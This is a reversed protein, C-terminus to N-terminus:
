GKVAGATIGKVLWRQTAFFALMVPITSVVGAAMLQATEESYNGIFNRIGIPITEANHQTLAAAFLLEDWAMLFAYVFTAVLGPAANPLVIRWFASFPTCGDVLAAEELEQPISQFFYRMFWIAVPTFFAVYVIILGTRTDYLHIPTNQKLWIFGLFLPLLFMSGPILQTGVVTLGYTTQGRFRLRALAYGACSALATAILAAATVVMLSNVFYRDFDVAGWMQSFARFTPHLLDYTGLALDNRTQLSSLVLWGIPALMVVLVLYTLANLGLGVLRKRRRATMGRVLPLATM